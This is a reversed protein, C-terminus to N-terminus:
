VRPQKRALYGDMRAGVQSHSLTQGSEIQSLGKEVESVFWEDYNVLREIAEVVLAGSDRGQQHALRTLRTQLDTSLQVEM